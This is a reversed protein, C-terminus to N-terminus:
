LAEGWDIQRAVVLAYVPSPYAYIRDYSTVSFVEDLQFSDIGLSNSQADQSTWNYNVQSTNSQKRRRKSPGPTPERPRVNPTIRKQTLATM